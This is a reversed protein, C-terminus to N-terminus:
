YAARLFSGALSEHVVCLREKKEEERPDSASCCWLLFLHLREKERVVFELQANGRVPGTKVPHDHLLPRRQTRQGRDAVEEGEVTEASGRILFDSCAHREVTFGVM